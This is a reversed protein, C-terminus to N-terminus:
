GIPVERSGRWGKVEEKLELGWQAEAVEFTWAATGRNGDVDSAIVWDGFRFWEDGQEDVYWGHM